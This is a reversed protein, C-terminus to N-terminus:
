SFLAQGGESAEEVLCASHALSSFIYCLQLYCRQSAATVLCAKAAM